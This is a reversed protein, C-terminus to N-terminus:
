TFISVALFDGTEFRLRALTLQDDSGARGAHLSGVRRVEIGDPVPYAFSVEFKASNPRASPKASRIAEVLERLTADKWTYIQMESPTLQSLDFAFDEARFAGNEKIFM